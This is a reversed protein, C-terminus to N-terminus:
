LPPMTGSCGGDACGGQLGRMGAERVWSAGDTSSGRMVESRWSTQAIPLL